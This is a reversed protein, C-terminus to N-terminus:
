APGTMPGIIMVAGRAGGIALAAWDKAAGPQRCASSRGILFFTGLGRRGDGPLHERRAPASPLPAMTSGPGRRAPAGQPARRCRGSLQALIYIGRGRSSRVCAALTVTIAPNFHAGSILALTQILVFLAFVRVLGIVSWDIFPAPNQPTPDVVFRSVAATIFFM